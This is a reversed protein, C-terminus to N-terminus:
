TERALRADLPEFQRAAELLLPPADSGRSSSFAIQGRLRDGRARRFRDRPGAGGTALVGLAADLGGAECTAGGAAGAGGARRAPRRLERAPPTWVGPRRRVGRGGGGPVGRRGRRACGAPWIRRLGGGRCSLCRWRIAGRRRSSATVCGSM